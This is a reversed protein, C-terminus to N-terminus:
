EGDKELEKMANVYDDGQPDRYHWLVKNEMFSVGKGKVTHAIICTPKDSPKTKLVDKIQNHDHGDIEFVDWGFVRWKEALNILELTNECYDLSQLKNHDVIITLNNLRNHNAFLAMEWVSGEDCEGDGM